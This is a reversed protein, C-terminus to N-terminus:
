VSYHAPSNKNKSLAWSKTKRKCTMALLSAERLSAVMDNDVVEWRAPPPDVIDAMKNLGDAFQRAAAPALWTIHTVGPLESSIICIVSKGDLTGIAATTVSARNFPPKESDM